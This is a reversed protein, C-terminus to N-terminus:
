PHEESQRRAASPSEIARLVNAVANVALVRSKEVGYQQSRGPSLWVTLYECAEGVKERLYTDPAGQIAFEIRRLEHRVDDDLSGPQRELLAELRRHLPLLDERNMM